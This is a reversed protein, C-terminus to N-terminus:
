RDRDRNEGGPAAAPPGPPVPTPNSGSAPDSGAAPGPGPPPAPPPPPEVHVAEVDFILATNPPIRGAPAGQEGFALAPPIVIRRREGVSMGEVGTVFGKIAIPGPVVMRLPERGPLRSTDFVFGDPLYGTYHMVLAGGPEHRAAGEAPPALTLVVLGDQASGPRVWPEVARFRTSSSASPGWVQRGRADYGREALGIEGPRLTITSTLEFAGGVNTPAPAATAAQYGSKGERQVALDFAPLLKDAALTPFAAPAAWLGVVAERAAPSPLHLVRLRLRNNMRYFHLIGQRFPHAPDDARAVEFYIANGLGDVVVPAAAYRLRVVQNQEDTEAEFTGALLASAAEIDPDPQAPGPPPAEARDDVTVPQAAQPRPDAVDPDPTRQGYCAGALAVCAAGAVVQKLSTKM